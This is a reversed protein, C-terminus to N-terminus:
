LITSCCCNADLHGAIAGFTTPHESNVSSCSTVGIPLVRGEGAAYVLQSEDSEGLRGAEPTSVADVDAKRLASAIAAYVDEDTFLRVASM